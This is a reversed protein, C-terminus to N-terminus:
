IDPGTTRYPDSRGWRGIILNIILWLRGFAPCYDALDDLLGFWYGIQNYDKDDSM